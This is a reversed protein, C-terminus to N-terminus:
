GRGYTANKHRGTNDRVQRSLYLVTIVLGFVGLVEALASVADWNM